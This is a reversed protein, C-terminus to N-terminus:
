TPLAAEPSGRRVPACNLRASMVVEHQEVPASDVGHFSPVLWTNSSSVVMGGRSPKGPIPPALAGGDPHGSGRTPLSRNPRPRSRPLFHDFSLHTLMAIITTLDDRTRTLWFRYVSRLRTGPAEMDAVLDGAARRNRRWRCYDAKHLSAADGM